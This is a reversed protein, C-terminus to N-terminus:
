RAGRRVKRGGKVSFVNLDFDSLNFPSKTPNLIGFYKMARFGSKKEYESLDNKNILFQVPVSFIINPNVESIVFLSEIVLFFLFLYHKMFINIQAFRLQNGEDGKEITGDLVALTLTASIRGCMKSWHPDKDTCVTVKTSANFKGTGSLVIARGM